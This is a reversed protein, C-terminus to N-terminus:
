ESESESLEVEVLLSTGVAPLVDADYFEGEIGVLHSNQAPLSDESPELAEQLLPASVMMQSKVCAQGQMTHKLVEFKSYDCVTVTSDHSPTLQTVTQHQAPELLKIQPDSSHLPHM